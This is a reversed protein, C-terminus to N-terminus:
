LIDSKFLFDEVEKVFEVLSIGHTGESSFDHSSPDNFPHRHWKGDCCDRGYFRMLGHILLYNITGTSINHYLQIFTSNDIEFRFKVASDTEDVLKVSKIFQFKNRTEVIEDKLNDITM